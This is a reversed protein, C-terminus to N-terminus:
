LTVGLLGFAPAAALMHRDSTHIALFGKEAACTLHLADASRLFLNSSLTRMRKAATTLLAEDVPQWQWLGQASDLEFSIACCPLDRRM